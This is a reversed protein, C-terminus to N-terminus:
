GEDLEFDVRAYLDHFSIEFDDSAL